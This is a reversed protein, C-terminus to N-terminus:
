APLPYTGRLRQAERKAVANRFGHHVRAAAEQTELAGRGCIVQQPLKTAPQLDTLRRSPRQLQPGPRVTPTGYRLPRLDAGGTRAKDPQVVEANKHVLDRERLRGSDTARLELLHRSAKDANKVLLATLAQVPQGFVAGTEGGLHPM